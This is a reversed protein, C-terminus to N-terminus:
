IGESGEKLSPLPDSVLVSFRIGVTQLQELGCYTMTQASFYKCLLPMLPPLEPAAGGWRLMAPLSELDADNSLFMLLVTPAMESGQLQAHPLLTALPSRIPLLWSSLESGVSDPLQLLLQREVPIRLSQHIRLRDCTVSPLM